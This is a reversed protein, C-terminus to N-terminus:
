SVPVVLLDMGADPAGSLQILYDGPTLAFDVM